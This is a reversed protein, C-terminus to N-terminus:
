EQALVISKFQKSWKTPSFEIIEYTALDNAAFPDQKLIKQLADKSDCKAIIIGGNRPIQPGSAIFFDQDYYNGLFDLHASRFADIKELPVKYSLIVIFLNSKNNSMNDEEDFLM